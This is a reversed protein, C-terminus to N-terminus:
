SVRPDRLSLERSVAAALHLRARGACPRHEKAVGAISAGRIM